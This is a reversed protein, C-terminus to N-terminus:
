RAGGDTPEPAPAPPSVLRPRAGGNEADALWQKGIRTLEARVDANQEALTLIWGFWVNFAEKSV